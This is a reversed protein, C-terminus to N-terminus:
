VKLTPNKELTHRLTPTESAQAPDWQFLPAISLTALGTGVGALGRTTKRIFERRTIKIEPILSPNTM